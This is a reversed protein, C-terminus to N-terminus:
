GADVRRALFNLVDPILPSLPEAVSALFCVSANCCNLMFYKFINTNAASAPGPMELASNVFYKWGVSVYIFHQFCSTMGDAKEWASKRVPM